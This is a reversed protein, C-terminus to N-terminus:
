RPIKGDLSVIEIKMYSKEGDMCHTISLIKGVTNHDNGSQIWEGILPRVTLKTPWPKLKWADYHIIIKVDFM